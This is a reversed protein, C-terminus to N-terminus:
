LTFTSPKFRSEIAEASEVHFENWAKQVLRSEHAQLYEIYITNNQFEDAASIPATDSLGSQLDKISQLLTLATFDPSKTKKKGAPLPSQWFLDRKDSLTPTTVWKEWYNEIDKKLFIQSDMLTDSFHKILAAKNKEGHKSEAVSSIGRAKELLPQLLTKRRLRAISLIEKQFQNESIKSDKILGEEMLEKILPTMFFEHYLKKLNNLKQKASLVYNKQEKERNEASSDKIGPHNLIFYDPNLEKLEEVTDPVETGHKVLHETITDNFFYLTTGKHINLNVGAEMLINLCKFDAIRAFYNLVSEKEPMQANLPAGMKILKLLLSTTVLKKHAYTQIFEVLVTRGTNSDSATVDVGSDLLLNIITEMRAPDEYMPISVSYNLLPIDGRYNLHEGKQIASAVGAINGENIHTKLDKPPYFLRDPLEFSLTDSKAIGIEKLTKQHCNKDLNIKENDTWTLRTINVPQGHSEPAVQLILQALTLDESVNKSIAPGKNIQIIIIM